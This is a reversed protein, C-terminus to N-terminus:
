SDATKPNSGQSGMEVLANKAEERIVRRFSEPIEDSWHGPQAGALYPQPKASPKNSEQM